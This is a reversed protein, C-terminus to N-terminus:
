AAALAGGSVLWGMRGGGFGFLEEVQASSIKPLCLAHNTLFGLEGRRCELM